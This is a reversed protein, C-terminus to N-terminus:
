AAVHPSPSVVAREPNLIVIPIPDWNRTAGSWRDPHRERAEAYVAQRARLLAVDRGAHRDDPTVFRIASHLHATNYWHVFGDVWTRAAALSAFPQAPYEPRYKLTRFLSESFPNDNSVRPRSFSALVGLRELTVLMTAGKMPSGNDAHFVIGRPDLRHTACTTTFVTSAIAASEVDDVHWGVIKRSWIDMLLYLYFFLGRVPTRLWTIDWTWVQHPGTAIHTRPPRPVPAKARGRHALLHEVRLVRYITSESGLYQGLDALRPVIQHPSLERYAAANVTALLVRREASSLKNAPAHRPGHRADEAHAGRWREVTRVSLGVLQCARARRAGARVAEAILARIM